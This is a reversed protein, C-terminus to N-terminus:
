LDVQYEILESYSLTNTVLVIILTITGIVIEQSLM